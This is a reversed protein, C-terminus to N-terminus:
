GLWRSGRPIYNCKDAGILPVLPDAFKAPERPIASSFAPLAEHQTHGTPCRVMPPRSDDAEAAKATGSGPPLRKFERPLFGKPSAARPIIGTVCGRRRRHCHNRQPRRRQPIKPGPADRRTLGTPRFNTTLEDNCTRPSCVRTLTSTSRETITPQPQVSCLSPPPVMRGHEDHIVLLLVFEAIYSRMPLARM